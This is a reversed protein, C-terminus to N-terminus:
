IQYCVYKILNSEVKIKRESTINGQNEIQCVYRWHSKEVHLSFASMIVNFHVFDGDDWSGLHANLRKMYQLESLNDKTTDDSM